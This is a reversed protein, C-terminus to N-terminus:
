KNADTSHNIQKLKQTIRKLKRNQWNKVIHLRWLIRVTINGLVSLVTGCIFCGLLLPQWILLFGDKLWDISLEFHFENVPTGLTWTGVLYAFYFMPTITIPNTLWVLAVSIPLNVRLFLAIAAAIAMQFPVPFFACFLGVSFASSVSRKNLHWLDSAFITRGFVGLSKSNKLTEESPLYRRIIKKPM